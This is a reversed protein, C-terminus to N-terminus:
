NRGINMKIFKEILGWDGGKPELIYMEQGSPLELMKSELVNAGSLVGGLHIEYDKAEFFLSASKYLNLSSEIKELFLPILDLVVVSIKTNKMEAAIAEMLKQQRKARSFDSTTYRSRAVRLAEIGSLHTKGAPYYLTGERGDDITKYYPDVLAQEFEFEVGGLEDVLEPFIMMNVLVYDAIELGSIAEIKELFKEVGYHHYYSNIKRDEYFLDRPISVMNATEKKTDLGAIIITDINDGSKGLILINNNDFNFEGAEYEKKFKEIDFFVAEEKEDENFNNELDAIDRCVSSLNLQLESNKQSLVQNLERAAKLKQSSREIQFYFVSFIFIIFIIFLVKKITFIKGLM